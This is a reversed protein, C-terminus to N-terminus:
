GFRTAEESGFYEDASTSMEVAPGDASSPVSVLGPMTGFVLVKTGEEVMSVIPERVSAASVCAMSTM